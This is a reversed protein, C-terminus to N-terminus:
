LAAYSVILPAANREHPDHQAKPQSTSPASKKPLLTVVEESGTPPTTM